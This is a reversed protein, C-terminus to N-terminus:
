AAAVGVAFGPAGACRPFIDSGGAISLGGAGCRGSRGALGRVRWGGCSTCYSALDSTWPVTFDTLHHLVMGTKDLFRQALVWAPHKGGKGTRRGYNATIGTAAQERYSERIQEIEQSTLATRGAAAADKVAKRGSRLVEIMATAWPQRCPEAEAVGTASRILHANCLQRATLIAQYKAYGNYDDSVLTGTYREFLGFLDLAGHGRTHGAGLWVLDKSRLTFVHPRFARGSGAQGDAGPTDEITTVPTEDALTVPEALLATKLDDEFGHLNGALRAAIKSIWGASVGTGFLGNVVEATREQGLQGFAHCLLAAATLNPGYCAPGGAAGEPADAKTVTGCGCRRSVLLYETVLARVEPIDVVQLVEAASQVAGALDPGCGRCADPEVVLAADPTRSFALGGGRHGGQGGRKKGEPEPGEAPENKRRERQARRRDARTGPGDSSPPRSSNQSDRGTKAILDAVLLDLAGIKADQAVARERLAAIVADKAAERDRYEGILAAQRGIRALLDAVPEGTPPVQGAVSEM